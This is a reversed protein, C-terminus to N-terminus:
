RLEIRTVSAKPFTHSFTSGNGAVKIESPAVAEPREDDNGVYINDAALLMGSASHVSFGSLKITSTIDATLSRNVGFLTIKDGSQNAVAVLDLYPVDAVDPTRPSGEKVSYRAVEVKTDLLNAVDANSYMRFAWYSPVGYTIGRKEWLRGFEVAGTMNAIPVFDAVRILTNLMGALWIAGGLNRYEPLHPAPYDPPSSSFPARFLYETLAIGVRGKMRADADIQNKMDHFLREIGVPMAFMAEAV